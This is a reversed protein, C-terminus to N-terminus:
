DRRWASKLFHLCRHRVIRVLWPRFRRPDKLNPIGAWAQVLTEQLVDEADHIDSASHRIVSGLLREYRRVLEVFASRDGTACRRVLTSDSPRSM